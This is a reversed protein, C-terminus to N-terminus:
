GVVWDWEERQGEGFLRQEREGIEEQQQKVKRLWRRWRGQWVVGDGKL